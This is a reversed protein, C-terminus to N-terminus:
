LRLRLDRRSSRRQVGRGVMFGFLLMCGAVTFLVVPEDLRPTPTEIRAALREQMQAMRELREDLQAQMEQAWPPPTRGGAVGDLAARLESVELRLSDLQQAVGGEGASGIATSPAVTPEVVTASRLDDQARVTVAVAPVVLSLGAALV